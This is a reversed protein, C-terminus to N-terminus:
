RGAPLRLLWGAGGLDDRVAWYREEWSLPDLLEALDNPDSTWDYFAYIGPYHSSAVAHASSETMPEFVCRM